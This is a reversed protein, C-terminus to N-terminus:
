FWGNNCGWLQINGNRGRNGANEIDLCKNKYGKSQIRKQAPNYYFVQQNSATRDSLVVNRGGKVSLVRKSPLNSAIRFDRGIFLGAAKDFVYKGGVTKTGSSRFNSSKFNKVYRITWRQNPGNHKSWLIVNQDHADKGRWVDLAFGRASM